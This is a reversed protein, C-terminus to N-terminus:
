SSSRMTSAFATISAASSRASSPSMLLSFSRESLYTRAAKVRASIVAPELEGFVALMQAFARGEGTTMDIIQEVCVIAAGRAQLAEDTHLFDIVRRALRDVKWIVVADFPYPSDMLARWAPRIEPKNHTASVGKDVFEGVVKWERAQAYKRGAHLQRAVSVSEETTHSIRAYIVAKKM